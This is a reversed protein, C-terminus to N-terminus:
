LKKVLSFAGRIQGLSYGQAQDAPYHEKIIKQVDDAVSKGHCGLCLGEVPQAKMFRYQNDIIESYVLESPSHGEAQLKNFQELAKREFADPTANINRPKLSVRKVQWGTALSLTSAIKPAEVACVDVANVFGGAAIGAKLKPKLTGGFKKVINIAEQKLELESYMDNALLSFSFLPLVLFSFYIKNRQM